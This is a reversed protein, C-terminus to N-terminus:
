AKEQQVKSVWLAGENGNKGGGRTEKGLNVSKPLQTKRKKKEHKEEKGM